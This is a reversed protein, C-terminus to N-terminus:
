VVSKRDQTKIQSSAANVAEDKTQITNYGCGTALLAATAAAPLLRRLMVM